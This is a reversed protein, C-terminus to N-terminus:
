FMLRTAKVLLSRGRTHGCVSKPMVPGCSRSAGEAVRSLGHSIAPARESCLQRVQLVRLVREHLPGGALTAIVQLNVGQLQFAKGFLLLGFYSTSGEGLLLLLDMLSYGGVKVGRLRLLHALWEAV